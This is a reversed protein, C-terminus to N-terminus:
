SPAVSRALRAGEERKNYYRLEVTVRNQLLNVEGGLEFERAREPKLDPNGVASFVIAAADTGDVNATQPQFYRLADTTGPQVGSAGFAGRVRASNLWSWRPFFPEDAVVWSVGLQPYYVANFNKGFASNKDTRLGATVFLRGKFGFEQEVFAGLTVTKDTSEDAQPTSEATLTTRGPSLNEADAANRARM